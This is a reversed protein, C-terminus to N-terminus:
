KKKKILSVAYEFNENHTVASLVIYLVIGAAVQCVLLVIDNKIFFSVMYVAVGMIATISLEPMVDKLQKGIPYDLLKGVPYANLIYLFVQSILSGVAIAMVGFFASIVLIITIIIKKIFELKITIDSRGLAKPVQMNITQVSSFLYITCFVRFFPVCPLWKDTLFIKILPEAVAAMGVMIPAIIYLSIKMGRKVTARMLQLDEQEKSLASFLVSNYSANLSASISSPYERGKSYYALDSASYFKGIILTRVNNYFENFLEAVVLKWGYSLLAKIKSLSFVAKPRWKVTIWLILTDITQNTLQQVVLAWVGYGSYALFIGVFASIVTGIITAYFFKKFIMKRAVDAQQVSNVASLLVKLSMVRMVSTLIPMDYFKAVLPATFFLLGYVCISFLLNVYFVSSFDVDDADKKQILASPLGSNIFVDTIALLVSIMAVAAYDEPMLLRALVVSVILGVAKAAAEELTKWLVGSAIKKKLGQDLTIEEM